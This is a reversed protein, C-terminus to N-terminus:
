LGCLGALEPIQNIAPSGSLKLLQLEDRDSYAVGRSQSCYFRSQVLMWHAISAAATMPDKEQLAMGLEYQSAEVNQYQLRTHAM